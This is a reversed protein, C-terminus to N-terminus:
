CSIAPGYNLVDVPGTGTDVHITWTVGERCGLTTSVQFTGDASITTPFDASDTSPVSPVIYVIVASNPTFGSGNVNVGVSLITDVTITRLPPTTVTVSNSPSSLVNPIGITSGSYYAQVYCTYTTGAALFLTADTSQTVQTSSSSGDSFTIQYAIDSSGDPASVATWGFEVNINSEGSTSSSGLLQLGTPAPPPILSSTCVGGSANGAFLALSPQTAPGTVATIPAGPTNNGGAPSTWQDWSQYPNGSTMIVEGNTDTMFLLFRAPSVLDQGLVASVQAGPTTTDGAVPVWGYGPTANIAWIEGSPNSIFLAVSGEWPIATIPAGPMTSGESVPTWPQPWGQYPAGTTTCVEGNIDAMFLTFVDGSALATIPAGPKTTRGPVVEWGYGPTAKIGYIGGGPDSIFLAFSDEWPVAAIPAGPITSGQSVSTWPQWGQYPAGTTTFVEGTVDAMFLTFINGSLLATIPAGPKTTRGPVVEWGYGPTAKIAYIDGSPDSIFLAFSDEWPIATIPAGPTTSGQSVSTWTQWALGM